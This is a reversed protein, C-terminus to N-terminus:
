TIQKYPNYNSLFEDWQEETLTEGDKKGYQKYLGDVVMNYLKNTKVNARILVILISLALCLLIAAPVAHRWYFSLNLMGASNRTIHFYAMVIAPQAVVTAAAGIVKQKCLYLVAGVIMVGTGICITIFSNAIYNFDAKGVSLMLGTSILFLATMFVTYIWVIYSLVSLTNVLKGGDVAYSIGYKYKYKEVYELINANKKM